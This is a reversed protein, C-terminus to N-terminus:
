NYPLEILFSSGEGVDVLFSVPGLVEVVVGPIWADGPRLNRAMVLQGVTMERGHAHQDHNSKQVTQKDAVTDQLNLRLGRGVM